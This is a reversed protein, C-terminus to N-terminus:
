KRGQLKSIRIQKNSYCMTSKKLLKRYPSACKRVAAKLYVTKKILPIRFKKEIAKLDFHTSIGKQFCRQERPTDLM